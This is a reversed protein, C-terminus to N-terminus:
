QSLNNFDEVISISKDIKGKIETLNEKKMTIAISM